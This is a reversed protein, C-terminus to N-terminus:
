LEGDSSDEHEKNEEESDLNIIQEYEDELLELLSDGNLIVNEDEVMLDPLSEIEETSSEEEIINYQFYNYWDLFNQDFEWYEEQSYAINSTLLGQNSQYTKINILNKLNNDRNIHKELNLRCLSCKKAWNTRLQIQNEFCSKHFIHGCPLHYVLKKYICEYCIACDQEIKCNELIIINMNKAKKNNNYASRTVVPM